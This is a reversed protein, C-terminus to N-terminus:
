DVYDVFFKELETKAEGGEGWLGVIEKQIREVNRRVERGEESKMKGLLVDVENWFDELTFKGWSGCGSHESISYPKMRGKEGTRVSMLEFGVQHVLSVLVANM